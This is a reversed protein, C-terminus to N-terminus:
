NSPPVAGAAVSLSEERPTAVKGLIPLKVTFKAGGEERNECTIVGSHEQVIGYCASLGLGTGQGVPRTTYFPDFVRDPEAIGPGDDTYELFVFDDERRTSVTLLTGGENMANVANNTIHLCVQLLQNSDGLIRPLGPAFSTRVKINRASIQPQCLKTATEALVNLDLSAKNAPTQKAFSLLNAVLTRTRRVQHGIKETLSRQHDNLNTSLLLESYGLMAALPNNLEHAAGGVLQGLSALKESQVLQAQLDRLNDFSAQSGRLLGLLERDLLHQKLFVMSGMVLMGSLTVVMRFTRIRVPVTIDFFSWAAFLPLSAIAIMGLRAVWVGQSTRPRPVEKHISSNAAWLGIATIWAMSTSLPIDYISGSYYIGRVIAWNAVYSGLGYILVARFWHIYNAKWMGSSGRWVLLLSALFAVKEALYLTNWNKSYAAEIPNIYQWPFILFFYLYLWWVVLLAFDLTGLRTSRNDHEFHAQLALAAMMPVLHLFIIIDPSFPDPVDRRLVVEWYTWIGQYVAWMAVGMAMLAWFARARGHNLKVNFALAVTASVLLAFQSVDAFILLPYGRRMFVSALIQVVVLGCASYLWIKSPRPLRMSSTIKFVTATLRSYYKPLV